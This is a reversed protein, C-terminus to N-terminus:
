FRDPRLVSVDSFYMGVSYHPTWTDLVHRAITDVVADDGLVKFEITRDAEWDGDRVGERGAGHVEGVTWFHAGHERATRVLAKELAAEAVIVLLTKRHRPLPPTSM